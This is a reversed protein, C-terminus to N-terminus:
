RAAPAAVSQREVLWGHLLHVGDGHSPANGDIRDLLRTMGWRGMAEHPLAVTTLGPDLADAVPRLDDIGVVSLGAPVSIGRRSAAQMVGMAIQDNFCIVATPPVPQDLLRGGAERGGAAESACFDLRGGGLAIGADGLASRVGILRGRAARSEDTTGVYAIDRHGDRTLRECALAAIQAEDPVVADVEWGPQPAADVLVVPVDDPMDPRAVRQHYMRAILLGDVRQALFRAVLDSEAAADGGSEAVMLLVDRELGARRAGEIIRGAFPTAAVDDGILGVIGTRRRRLGSAVRDPVYGLERAVALIRDRTEANVARAGSLAHSVTTASVGAAAAVDSVRARRTPGTPM